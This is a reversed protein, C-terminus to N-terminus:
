KSHRARSGTRARMGHRGKGASRFLTQDRPTTLLTLVQSVILGGVIALCASPAPVPATGLLAVALGLEFEVDAVSPHITTTRDSLVALDVAMLGAEIQPLLSKIVHVV